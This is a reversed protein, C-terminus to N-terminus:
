GEIARWHGDCGRCAGGDGGHVAGAVAGGGCRRQPRCWGAEGRV